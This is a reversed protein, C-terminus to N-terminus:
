IEETHLHHLEGTVMEETHLRHPEGTVNGRYPPSTTGWDCKRQTSTIYDHGHACTHTHVNVEDHVHIHTHTHSTHTNISNINWQIEKIYKGHAIARM